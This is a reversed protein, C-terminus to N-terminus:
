LFFRLAMVNRIRTIARWRVTVTCPINERTGLFIAEFWASNGKPPKEKGGLVHNADLTIM